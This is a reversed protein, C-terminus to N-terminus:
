GYNDGYTGFRNKIDAAGTKNNLLSFLRSYREAVKVWDNVPRSYNAGEELARLELIVGDPRGIFPRSPGVKELGFHGGADNKTESWVFDPGTFIKDLWQRVTLDKQDDISRGKGESGPLKAGFLKEDGHVQAIQMVDNVFSDQSAFRSIQAVVTHLDTRSLIDVNLKASQNDKQQGQRHVLNSVQLAVLAVVSKYNGGRMGIGEARTALAHTDAVQSEDAPYLTKILKSIQSLRLGGTVQFSGLLQEYDRTVKLDKGSSWNKPRFMNDKAHKAVEGMKLPIQAANQTEDIAAVVYEPTWEGYDDPGDPTLKWGTGQHLAEGKSLKGKQPAQKKVEKIERDDNSIIEEEDSDFDNDASGDNIRAGLVEIEFGVKRQVPTQGSGPFPKEKLPPNGDATKMQLAKTGMIDAEKELGADDNIPTTGKLQRTAPVRGQKQQVVHWAEHALHKEQGPAVHIDNGQTYAHAQLQAPKSSNYHVRVDGMSYGSLNEVGLKLNNPLGTNNAKKQIPAEAHPANVVADMSGLKQAHESGNALHELKTQAVTNPGNHHTRAPAEPKRRTPRSAQARNETTKATAAKM